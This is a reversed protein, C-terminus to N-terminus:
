PLSDVINWWTGSKNLRLFTAGTAISDLYPSFKVNFLLLSDSISPFNKATRWRFATLALPIWFITHYLYLDIEIFSSSLFFPSLFYPICQPDLVISDIAYTPIGAISIECDHIYLLLLSNRHVDENQILFYLSSISLLNWFLLVLSIEYVIICM